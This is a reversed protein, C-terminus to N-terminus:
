YKLEPFEVEYKFFDADWWTQNNFEQIMVYLRGKDVKTKTKFPFKMLTLLLKDKEQLYVDDRKIFEEQVGTVTAIVKTRLAM